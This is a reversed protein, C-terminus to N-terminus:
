AGEHVTQPLVGALGGGRRVREGGSSDSSGEGANPTKPPASVSVFTVSHIIHVNVPSLAGNKGTKPKFHM